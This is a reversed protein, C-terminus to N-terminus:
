VRVIWLCSPRLTKLDLLLLFPGGLEPISAVRVVLCHWNSGTFGRRRCTILRTFFCCKKRRSSLHGRRRRAFRKLQRPQLSSAASRPQVYKSNHARATSCDYTPVMLPVGLLGVLGLELRLSGRPRRLRLPVGRGWPARSGERPPGLSRVRGPLAGLARLVKAALTAAGLLAGVRFPASLGAFPRSSAAPFGWWWPPLRWGPCPWEDM